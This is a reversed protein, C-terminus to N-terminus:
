LKPVLFRAPPHEPRGSGDEGPGRGQQSRIEAVKAWLERRKEDLMQSFPTAAIRTLGNGARRLESLLEWPDRCVSESMLDFAIEFTTIQRLYFDAAVVQGDLRATREAEVKGMWKWFLNGLIALRAEVNDESEDEEPDHGRLRSPVDMQANRAAADAVGTALKMAGNQRALAMARDFATRFSDADPRKLLQDIGYANRGIALAAKRKSGTTALLAIFARQADPDWGNFRPKVPVPDFELLDGFQSFDGTGATGAVRCRDCIVPITM